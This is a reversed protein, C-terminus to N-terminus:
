NCIILHTTKKKNSSSYKKTYENKILDKFLLQIIWVNELCILIKSKMNTIKNFYLYEYINVQSNFYFDNCAMLYPPDLFMLCNENNYKEIIEIGDINLFTIDENKLFNIIPTEKLNTFDTKIKKEDSPYLGPRINYIKNTYYYNELLDVKKLNNYKDKNIDKSIKNLKVIFDNIKEDDNMLKYLDILNKNNDNLIYKFKKPHLTSIYYSFAASGCYPEIIYEINDLNDKIENYLKDCETRKNGFYPLFFHNKKM